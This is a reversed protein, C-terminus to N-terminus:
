AGGWSAEELEELVAEAAQAAAPTVMVLAARSAGGGPRDSFLLASTGAARLADIDALADEPSGPEPMPQAAVGLAAILAAVNDPTDPGAMALYGGLPQEDEDRAVMMATSASWKGLNDILGSYTSQDFISSM